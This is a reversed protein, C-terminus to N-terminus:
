RKSGAKKQHEFGHVWDGRIYYLLFCISSLSWTLPYAWFIVEIKPILHTIITIYTVRIVCWCCLMVLMPVVSKGAGRMIGAMSHSLALLFYFLTIIHAQKMSYAMVNPDDTFIRILQPIFFYICVGVIEALIICSFIGFRAGKKAREYQKAGLNQGIFTTLAMAFSTIPIFAFGELKSYSGCGAVAAADFQNINSQVVLNALAIVSNQLGAPIGMHLIQKLMELDFKIKRIHVQYEGKTHLLRYFALIVSLSQASVTAIAAGKVGMKLGAVLTLDLVVNAISSAILYYLPHKSDGVAQFIGSATNYLVVALIGSFYIRFYLVSNPFVAKPTGMITLIWPSAATGIVMLVVGAVLAFAISTHIAKQMNEQDRAGFYKSIVVGAGMFIGSFLGVLLFILSGSSSVAALADRGAFKGVVVSDVVNYLQQFLNGWFVPLAFRIMKQAIPGETMLLTETKTGQKM